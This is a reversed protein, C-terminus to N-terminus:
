TLNGSPVDGGGATGTNVVEMVGADKAPVAPAAAVPAPHAPAPAGAFDRPSGASLLLWCSLFTILADHRSYNIRWIHFMNITLCNSRDLIDLIDIIDISM